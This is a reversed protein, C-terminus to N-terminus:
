ANALAILVEAITTKQVNSNLTLNTGNAVNTTFKYLENSVIVYDGSSYNKTAKM